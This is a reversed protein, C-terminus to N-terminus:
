SAWPRKDGEELLQLRQPLNLSELYAVAKPAVHEKWRGDGKAIWQRIDSSHCAGDEVLEVVTLKLDGACWHAAQLTSPSGSFIIGTRLKKLGARLQTDFGLNPALPFPRVKLATTVDLDALSLTVCQIAEDATLPNEKTRQPWDAVLIHLTDLNYDRCIRGVVQLHHLGFVQFRGPYSGIRSM